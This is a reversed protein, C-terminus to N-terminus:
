NWGQGIYICNAFGISVCLGRWADATTQDACSISLQVQYAADQPPSYTHSIFTSTTVIPNSGDGFDWSVNAISSGPCASGSGSPRLADFVCNLDSGSWSCAGQFNATAAEVRPTSAALALACLTGLLAKRM